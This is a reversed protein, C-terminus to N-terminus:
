SDSGALSVTTPASVESVLQDRHPDVLEHDLRDLDRLAFHSLDVLRTSIAEPPTMSM